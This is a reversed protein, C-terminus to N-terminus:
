FNDSKPANFFDGSLAATIFRMKADWFSRDLHFNMHSGGTKHFKKDPVM